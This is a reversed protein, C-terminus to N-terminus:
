WIPTTPSRRLPLIASAQSTGTRTAYARDTISAGRGGAHLARAARRAELRHFARCGVHQRRRAAYIRSAYEQGIRQFLREAGTREVRVAIGPFKRRSHKRAVAGRVAPRDRHLLRVKGEKKAAEILAPTIASPEPPGRAAPLRLRDGGARHPSSCMADPSRHKADNGGKVLLSRSLTRTSPPM